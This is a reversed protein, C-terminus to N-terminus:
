VSRTLTGTATDAYYTYNKTNNVAYVNDMEDYNIASIYEIQKGGYGDDGLIYAGGSQIAALIENYNKDLEYNEGVKERKVVLVGGGSGGGGGNQIANAIAALYEEYRWAPQPIDPTDGGLSRLIVDLFEEGRSTPKLDFEDAM